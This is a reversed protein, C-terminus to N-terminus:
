AGPNTSTPSHTSTVYLSDALYMLGPITGSMKRLLTSVYVVLRYALPLLDKDTTQINLSFYGDVSLSTPGILGEFLRKLELPTYYNVEAPLRRRFLRKLRNYLSRAGFINPLQILCVGSIKLTRAIGLLSQRVETKDLHQLVSYSFVVDFAKDAFPLCRADAVLYVGTVGLQQAVRRAARIAELSPDIGVVAYGKRAASVCWRGWNCGIDLFRKGQGPPLRQEPIPYRSLKGILPIYMQGNTAAIALQVFPDVANIDDLVFESPALSSHMALFTDSWHQCTAKAEKLLMVPIGDIYPYCHGRACVLHDMKLQVKTHDDPCVLNEELWRDM